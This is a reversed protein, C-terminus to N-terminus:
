WSPAPAVVTAAKPLDVGLAVFLADLLHALGVGCLLGAASALAGLLLAEFLVAGLVQRRSAGLTRLTALQRTRQAVTITLTNAIVFAGVFLAIGAFALLFTSVQKADQANSEAAASALEHATRVQTGRPLLPRIARVLDQQSIGDAAAVSVSGYRGPQGYLRQATAVDFVAITASGLSQVGGFRATGTVRFPETEGQVAVGIRDGVALGYWAATGADV